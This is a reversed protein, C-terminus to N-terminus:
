DHLGVNQLHDAVVIEVSTEPDWQVCSKVIFSKDVLWQLYAVDAVCVQEVCVVYLGAINEDTSM